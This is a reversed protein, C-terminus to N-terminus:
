AAKRAPRQALRRPRQLMSAPRPTRVHCHPRDYFFVYDLMRRWDSPAFDLLKNM